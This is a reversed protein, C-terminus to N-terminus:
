KLITLYPPRKVSTTVNFILSSTVCVNLCMCPVLSEPKSHYWSNAFMNLCSPIFNFLVRLPVHIHFYLPAVGQMVRTVSSMNNTDVLLSGSFRSSSLNSPTKKNLTLLPVYRYNRLKLIILNSYSM